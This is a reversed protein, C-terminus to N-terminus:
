SEIIHRYPIFGKFNRCWGFASHTGNAHLTVSDIPVTSTALIEGKVNQHYQVDGMAIACHEMPSSHPPDQTILRDHLEIM